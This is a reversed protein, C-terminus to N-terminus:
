RRRLDPGCVGLCRAQEPPSSGEIVPRRKV